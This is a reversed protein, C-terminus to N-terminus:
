ARFKQYWEYSHGVRLFSFSVDLHVVNQIQQAFVVSPDVSVM